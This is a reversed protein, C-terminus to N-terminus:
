FTTYQIGGSNQLRRSLVAYSENPSDIRKEHPSSNPYLTSQLYQAFMQRNRIHPKTSEAWWEAGSITRRWYHEPNLNAVWIRSDKSGVEAGNFKGGTADHWSIWTPACESYEPKWEIWTQCPQSKTCCPIIDIPPAQLATQMSNALTQNYYQDPVRRSKDTLSSTEDTYKPHFSYYTTM